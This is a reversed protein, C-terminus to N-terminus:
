SGLAYRNFAFRRQDVCRIRREAARKFGPLHFLKRNLASVDDLKQAQLGANGVKPILDIGVPIRAATGDVPRAAVLGVHRQVANVDVILALPIRERAHKSVCLVGNLFEANGGAIGIGVRATGGACLYRQHGLAAGIGKM